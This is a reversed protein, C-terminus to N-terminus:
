DEDSTTNTTEIPFYIGPIYYFHDKIFNESNAYDTGIEIILDASLNYDLEIYETPLTTSEKGPIIKQLFNLTEPRGKELNYYYTTEIIEQNGM